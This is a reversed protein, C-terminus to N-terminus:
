QVDVQLGYEVEGEEYVVALDLLYAGPEADITIAIADTGPTVAVEISDGAREWLTRNAGQSEGAEPRTWLEASAEVPAYQGFGTM